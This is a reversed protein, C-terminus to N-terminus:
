PCAGWAGLLLGLDTGDVAGDGNLDAAASGPGWSGLLLGLDTGDVTNSSDLDASCNLQGACDPYLSVIQSSSLGLPDTAVLQVTVWFTDEGCGLPSVTFSTECASDPPNPHTHTNHHLVTRWECTHQGPQEADTVTAQLAFVTSHEMSYLQGDRLSTITVAPPSNDTWCRIEQSVGAGDPDTVTLRVVRVQPSGSGAFTHSVVPTHEPPAGDDFEWTFALRGGEPDSSFTADFQVQLPAPGFLAGTTVLVVPAQNGRQAARYRTLGGSIDAVYLSEEDAGSFVGVIGDSVQDFVQVDTIVGNTLTAARIWGQVYDAIWLRGQWEVPWTSLAVPACAIACYGGFSSGSAGGPTGVEVAIAADGSWGPTRATASQHKWEIVPRRHMGRRLEQPITPVTGPVGLRVCDLHAAAPAGDPGPWIPPGTMRVIHTGASMSIQTSATRWETQAGTSPLVISGTPVGDVLLGCTAAPGENSYRVTFEMSGAAQVSFTWQILSQSTALLDRYYYSTAGGFSGLTPVNLVQGDIARVFGCPNIWPPSGHSEQCILDRFRFASPCSGAGGLPNPSEFSTVGFSTYGLQFDLGEFVPWGCNQAPGDVLNVEEWTGWGVDSVVFTGPNGASPLHDGTGPIRSVRFPNRFGMAWVRSRAARPATPDFFPNSPVGEGTQPDLRLLKGNLSDVIQARFAGVDHTAPLIGSAIADEVFGAPQPGGVDFTGFNASEGASVILTGDEGFVLSGIGHSQHLIPIGDERTQGLLVLRSEPHVHEFNDKAEATYRTVRAISAASTITVAPDYQPTGFFDLHHRDVVYALYLHGNSMFNPDLALGLLGYDVYALVEDSIDILPEPHRTGDAHVMWVKGGREWAILRHDPLEVVGVLENWGSGVAEATIGAPPAAQAVGTPWALSLACAVVSLAM